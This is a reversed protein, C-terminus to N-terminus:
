DFLWSIAQAATKGIFELGTSIARKLGSIAFDIADIIKGIDIGYRKLFRKGGELIAVLTSPETPNIDEGGGGEVMTDIQTAMGVKAMVQQHSWAPHKKRTYDYEMKADAPLRNYEQQERYTM